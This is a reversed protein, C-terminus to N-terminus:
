GNQIMKILPYEGSPYGQPSFSLKTKPQKADLMRTIFWLDLFMSMSEVSEKRARKREVWGGVINWLENGVKVGNSRIVRYFVGLPQKPTM